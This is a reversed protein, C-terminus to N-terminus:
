YEEPVNVFKEMQHQNINKTIVESSSPSSFIERAALIQQEMKRKYYRKWALGVFYIAGFLAILITVVFWIYKLYNVNMRGLLESFFIMQLSKGIALMASIIGGVIGAKQYSGMEIIALRLGALGFERALRAFNLFIIISYASATNKFFDCIFYVAMAIFIGFFSSSITCYSGTFYLLILVLPISFLSHFADLLSGITFMVPDNSITLDNSYYFYNSIWYFFTNEQFTGLILCGIALLYLDLNLFLSRFTVQKQKPELIVLGSITANNNNNHVNNIDSVEIDENNQQNIVEIDDVYAKPTIAIMTSKKGEEHGGEEDDDVDEEENLYPESYKKQNKNSGSLDDADTHEQQEEDDDENNTATSTTLDGAARSKNKDRNNIPSASSVSGGVPGRNIDKKMLSQNPLQHSGILPLNNETTAYSQMPIKVTSQSAPFHIGDRTNVSTGTNNNMMPRTVSGLDREVKGTPSTLINSISPKNETNV